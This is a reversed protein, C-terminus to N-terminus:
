CRMIIYEENSVKCNYDIKRAYIFNSDKRTIVIYGNRGEYVHNVKLDNLLM